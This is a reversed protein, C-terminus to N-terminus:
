STHIFLQLCRLGLNKDIGLM